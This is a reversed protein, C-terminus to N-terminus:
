GMDPVGGTDPVVDGTQFGWGMDPIGDGHRSDRGRDPVGGGTQFGM